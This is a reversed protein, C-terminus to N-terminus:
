ICALYIRSADGSGFTPSYHLRTDSQPRTLVYSRIVACGSLQTNTRFPGRKRAASAWKQMHLALAHTCNHTHTHTHTHTHAPATGPRALSAAHGPGLSSLVQISSYFSFVSVFVRIVPHYM